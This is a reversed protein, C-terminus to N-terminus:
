EGEIAGEVQLASRIREWAEDSSEVYSFLQLDDAGIM